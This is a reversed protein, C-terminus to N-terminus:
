GLLSYILKFVGQFLFGFVNIHTFNDILILGLLLWLLYKPLAQNNFGEGKEWVKFFDVGRQLFRDFFELHGHLCDVIEHPGNEAGSGYSFSHGYPASLIIAEATNINKHNIISEIM